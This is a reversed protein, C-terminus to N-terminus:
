QEDGLHYTLTSLWPSIINVLPFSFFKSSGRGTGSQGGCIGCPSVQACVWADMTLPQCSIAQAMASGFYVKFSLIHEFRAVM